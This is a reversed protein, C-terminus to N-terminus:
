LNLVNKTLATGETTMKERIVGREGGGCVCAVIEVFAIEMVEMVVMMVAVVVMFFLSWGGDDIVLVVVIVVGIFVGMAGVVKVGTNHIRIPDTNLLKRSGSVNRIRIWM